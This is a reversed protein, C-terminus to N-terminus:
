KGHAERLEKKMCARYDKAGSCKAASKKMIDIVRKQKATPKFTQNKVKNWKAAKKASMAVRKKEGVQYIKDPKPLGKNKGKKYVGGGTKYQRAACVKDKGRGTCIMVSGSLELGENDAYKEINGFLGSLVKKTQKKSKGRKRKVM